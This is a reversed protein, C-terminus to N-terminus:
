QRRTSVRGISRRRDGARAIRSGQEDAVAISGRASAASRIQGDFPDLKHDEQATYASRPEVASMGVVRPRPDVQVALRASTADGASVWLTMSSEVSPFMYAFKGEAASKMELRRERGAADCLCDDGAPRHPAPAIAPRSKSPWRRAKWCGNRSPRVFGVGHLCFAAIPGGPLLVRRASIPVGPGGAWVYAPWLLITGGLLAALRGLWPSRVVARLDVTELAEQGELVIADIVKTLGPAEERGLQLANIIRGHLRPTNQEVLAAFYDDSHRIRLAAPGGDARNAEQWRLDQEDTPVPPLAFPEWGRYLGFWLLPMGGAPAKTVCARDFAPAAEYALAGAAHLGHQDVAAQVRALAPAVEDPDFVEIVELPNRFALWAAGEPDHLLVAHTIMDEERQRHSLKAAWLRIADPM